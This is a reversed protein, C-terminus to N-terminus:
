NLNLKTLYVTNNTEPISNLLENTAYLGTSM